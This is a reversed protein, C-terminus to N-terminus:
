KLNRIDRTKGNAMAEIFGFELRGGATRNLLYKSPFNDIFKNEEDFLSNTSYAFIRTTDLARFSDISLISNNVKGFILKDFEKKTSWHSLVRRRICQTTGIYIQCFEDLILMYYGSKITYENLNFVETFKKNEKLFKNLSSIFEAKYLRRFYDMNLDYNILCNELHKECWEDTYIEGKRISSKNNIIAYKERLINLGYKSNLLNIGFHLM